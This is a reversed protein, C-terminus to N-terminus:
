HGRERLFEVILENVVSPQELFGFHGCDPVLTYRSGPIAAAVEEGLSPPIVVDHDFGVVLTPAMIDALAARRDPIRTVAYQQAPGVGAAPFRMGLELWDMIFDDKLLTEPGFLRTLGSAAEYANTEAAGHTVAEVTATVFADHFTPTRGRTGLLVLSSVLDSRAAAVEQAVLAGLSAGVLATPGLDLMTILGVTDHVLEALHYDGTPVSSPATGRNDFTIVEFGAAAVSPVQHMDWVTSRTAAPAIFVVPPGSGTRSYALTVGGVDIRSAPVAEVFVM